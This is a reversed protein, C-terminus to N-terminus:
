EPAQEQKWEKKEVKAYNTKENNVSRGVAQGKEM